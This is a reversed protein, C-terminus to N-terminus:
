TFNICNMLLYISTIRFTDLTDVFNLQSKTRLGDLSVSQTSKSRIPIAELKKM